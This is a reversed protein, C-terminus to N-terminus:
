LTFFGCVLKIQRFNRGRVKAPRRDLIFARPLACLLFIVSPVLSLISQEFLLTFDFNRSSTAVQPGFDNDAM